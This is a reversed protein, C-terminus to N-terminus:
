RLKKPEKLARAKKVVEELRLQFGAVPGACSDRLEILRAQIEEPPLPPNSRLTAQWLAEVKDHLSVAPGVDEDPLTGEIVLERLDNVMVALALQIDQRLGAGVTSLRKLFRDRQSDPM